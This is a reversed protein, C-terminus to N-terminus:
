FTASSSARRPRATQRRSAAAPSPIFHKEFDVWAPLLDLRSHVDVYELAEGTM